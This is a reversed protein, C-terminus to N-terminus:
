VVSPIGWPNRIYLSLLNKLSTPLEAEEANKPTKIKQIAATVKDNFLRYLGRFEPEYVFRMLMARVYKLTWVERIIDSSLDIYRKSLDKCQEVTYSDVISPDANFRRLEEIDPVM